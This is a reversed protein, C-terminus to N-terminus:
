IQSFIRVLFDHMLQLENNSLRLVDQKFGNSNINSAISKSFTQTDSLWDRNQLLSLIVKRNNKSHDLILRAGPENKYFILHKEIFGVKEDTTKYDNILAAEAKEIPVVNNSIKGESLKYTLNLQALEEETNKPPNQMLSQVFHIVAFRDSVPMYNYSVMGSGPIGEELTKWLESIKRGNKWNKENTFDRPAPVLAKGAIGDGKGAEGHCSACNAKYIESGKAIYEPSSVSVKALDVGDMISGKQMTLPKAITDRMLLAPKLNNRYAWDLNYVWYMGGAIILIAFYPYIIGFLRIPNKLLNEFNLEDEPKQIEDM